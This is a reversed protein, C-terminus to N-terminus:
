RTDIEIGGVLGAAMNYLASGIAGGILGFAAYLLPLFVIAGVGFLPAVFSGPFEGSQEGLGTPLGALMSVLAVCLGIILGIGAYV